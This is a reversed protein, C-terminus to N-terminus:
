PRQRLLLVSLSSGKELMSAGLLSLAGRSVAATETCDLGRPLARLSKLKGGVSGKHLDRGAEKCWSLCESVDPRNDWYVGTHTHPSGSNQDQVLFVHTPCLLFVPLIEEKSDLILTFKM